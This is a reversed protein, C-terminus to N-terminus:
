VAIELYQAIWANHRCEDIGSDDGGQGRHEGDQDGHGAPVHQRAEAPEDRATPEAGDIHETANGIDGPDQRQVEDRLTNAGIVSVQAQQQRVDGHM